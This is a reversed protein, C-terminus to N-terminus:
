PISSSPCFCSSTGRMCPAKAIAQTPSLRCCWPPVSRLAIHEPFTEACPRGGDVLLLLLCAGAWASRPPPADGGPPLRAQSPSVDRYGGTSRSGGRPCSAVGGSLCFWPNHQYWCCCTRSWSRLSPGNQLGTRHAMEALAAPALIHIRVPRFNPARTSSFQGGAALHAREQTDDLFSLRTPTSTLMCSLEAGHAAQSRPNAARHWRLWCWCDVLDSPLASALRQLFSPKCGQWQRM